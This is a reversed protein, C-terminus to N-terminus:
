DQAVRQPGTSQLGGPEETWPIRWALVSSHTAMERESAMWSNAKYSLSFLARPTTQAWLGAQCWSQRIAFGENIRRGRVQETPPRLPLHVLFFVLHLLERTTWHNLSREELAPSMPELGPLPVLIGRTM